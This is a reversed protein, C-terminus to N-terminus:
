IGPSLQMKIYRNYSPVDNMFATKQWVERLHTQYMEESDALSEIYTRFSGLEQGGQLYAQDIAILMRNYMYSKVALTCLKTFALYSRPNINNLNAENALICRIQYAATVRMQDRILMTNFGILDCTANSITPVNSHSDMVRQGASMLDSMSNPNVTGMGNGATNFATMQPLYGISLVSVIERGGTRDMPIEFIVSYTDIYKAPLGELSIIAMAGGVLNADIMVRPKIVKNLIQQDLSIPAQRWNYLDDRFAVGLIQQPITYKIEDLTKM